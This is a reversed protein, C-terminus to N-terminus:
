GPFAASASPEMPLNLSATRLYELSTVVADDEEWSERLCDVEVCLIGPYGQDQLVRM